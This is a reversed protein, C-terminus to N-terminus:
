PGVEEFFEADLRHPAAALMRQYILKAAYPQIVTSPANLMEETPEVPVLKWKDIM